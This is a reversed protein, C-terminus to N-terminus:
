FIPPLAVHGIQPFPEALQDRSVATALPQGLLVETLGSAQAGFHHRFDFSSFHPALNGTMSRIAAAMSM